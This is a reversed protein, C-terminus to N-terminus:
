FKLSNVLAVVFFAASIIITFQYLRKELGRRTRYVTSSDGGFMGTFGSGKVQLLVLAVVVVALLIQVIDLAARLTV